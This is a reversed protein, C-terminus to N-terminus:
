VAKVSSVCQFEDTFSLFVCMSLVCQFEDIHKMYKVRNTTKMPHALVVYLRM